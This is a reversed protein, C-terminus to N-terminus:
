ETCEKDDIGDEMLKIESNSNNDFDGYIGSLECLRNELGTYYERLESLTTRLETISHLQRDLCEGIGHNFEVASEVQERSETFAREYQRERARYEAVADRYQGLSRQSVIFGYITIALAVLVIAFSAHDLIKKLKGSM